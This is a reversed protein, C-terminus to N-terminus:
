EDLTIIGQQLAFKVLAPLDGIGLKRMLRSRYSDVTKPSLSIMVAIQASSKGEVVHQLVERERASLENLPNDQDAATRQLLYDEILEDSVSASLYRQGMLVTKIAAVLEDGASEKIVYGRAGAKLARYIYERTKHMSLMISQTDPCEAHITRAAEIGNMDAMAIDLVVVDPRLKIVQRVADHGNEAEGVVRMDTQSELLYRLGQRLIAHDDAIFIDISM